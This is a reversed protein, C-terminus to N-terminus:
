FTLIMPVLNVMSIIIIYKGIAKSIQNYIDYTFVRVNPLTTVSFVYINEIDIKIDYSKWKRNLDICVYQNETIAASSFVLYENEIQNRHFNYLFKQFLFPFHLYSM